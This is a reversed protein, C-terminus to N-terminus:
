AGLRIAARLRASRSRPNRAIEAADAMIPKRTGPRFAARHGCTCVPIGPPCICDHTERLMFRKVIRDELSHFSIVVLAAGPKLLELTQPLVRELAELEDNVAIRLAQFTRTAPHIRGGPGAARAVVNALAVTDSFPRQACIARAVRRSHREEGYEFIIRALEHEPWTNIIDVASTVADPGMRMDLPGSTRFSFGREANDLQMSSVGLDLLIGDVAEFGAQRSIAGLDSFSGLYCTVRGLYSALAKQAKELAEPDRDIGLLRGDPASAELIGRAHGGLGLTADIYHGGPLPRLWILTEEYLVPVHIPTDTTQEEM